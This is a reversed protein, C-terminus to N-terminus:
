LWATKILMFVPAAAMNTLSHLFIKKKIRNLASKTDVSKFDQLGQQLIIEDTIREFVLQNQLSNNVWDNLARHEGANLSNQIFGTILFAIRFAQKDEESLSIAADEKVPETLITNFFHSDPQVVIM